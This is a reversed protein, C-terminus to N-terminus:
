REDPAVSRDILRTDITIGSGHITLFHDDTKLHVDQRYSASSFRDYRGDTFAVVILEAIFHQCCLTRVVIGEGSDVTTVGDHHQRELYERNLILRRGFTDELAVSDEEVTIRQSLRTNILVAYQVLIVTGVGVLHDKGNKLFRM